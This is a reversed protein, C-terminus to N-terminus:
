IIQHLDTDMSEYAIYVEEFNKLPVPNLLNTM